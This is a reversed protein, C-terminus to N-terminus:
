CPPPPAGLDPNSNGGEKEPPEVFFSPFCLFSTQPFRGRGRKEREGKMEVYQGTSLSPPNTKWKREKGRRKKTRKRERPSEERRRNEVEEEKKELHNQLSSEEEEEEGGRGDVGGGRKKHRFNRPNRLKNKEGKSENRGKVGDNM